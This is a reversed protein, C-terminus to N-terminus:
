EIRGGPGNSTAGALLIRDTIVVDWGLRNQQHARPHHMAVRSPPRFRLTKMRIAPSGFRGFLAGLKRIEREAASRANADALSESPRLAHQHQGRERLAPLHSQDGAM